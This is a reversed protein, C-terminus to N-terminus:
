EMVTAPHHQQWAAAKRFGQAVELPEEGAEGIRGLALPQSADCHQHGDATSEVIGFSHCSKQAFGM